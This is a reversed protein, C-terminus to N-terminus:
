AIFIISVTIVGALRLWPEDRRSRFILETLMIPVFVVFTAEYGLAWLFLMHLWGLGFRRAAERILLAGGGWICVEIPFVFLASVRTAGPLVESVLPALFMLTLAPGIRRRLPLTAPKIM